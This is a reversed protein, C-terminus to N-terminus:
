ASPDTPGPNPRGGTASILNEVSDALDGYRQALELHSERAKTTQAATAAEIEEQARLRYYAAEDEVGSEL